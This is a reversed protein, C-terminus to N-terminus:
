RRAFFLPALYVVLAIGVIAWIQWPIIGLATGTAASITDTATKRVNSVGENWGLEFQDSPSLDPNTYRARYDGDITIQNIRSQMEDPSIIGRKAEERTVAILGNTTDEARKVEAPDTYIWDLFKSM